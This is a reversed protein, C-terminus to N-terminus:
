ALRNVVSSPAIVQLLITVQSTGRRDKGALVLPVISGSSIVIFVDEVFVDVAVVAPVFLLEGIAVDTDLIGDIVGVLM